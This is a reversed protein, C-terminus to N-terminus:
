YNYYIKILNIQYNSYLFMDKKMEELPKILQQNVIKIINLVFEDNGRGFHVKTFDKFVIKFEVLFDIFLMKHYKRFWKENMLDRNKYIPTFLRIFDQFSNIGWEEPLAFMHQEYYRKFRHLLLKTKEVREFYLKADIINTKIDTENYMKNYTLISKINKYNLM